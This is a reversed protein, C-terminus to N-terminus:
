LPCLIDNLHHSPCIKGSYNFLMCAQKYIIMIVVMVMMVVMMRLGHCKDIDKEIEIITCMYRRIDDAEQRPSEAM